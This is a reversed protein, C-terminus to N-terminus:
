GLRISTLSYVVIAYKIPLSGVSVMILYIHGFSRTVCILLGDVDAGIDHTTYGIKEYNDLVDSRHKLTLTLQNELRPFYNQGLKM